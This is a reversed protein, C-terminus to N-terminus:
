FRIICDADNDTVMTMVIMRIYPHGAVTSQQLAAAGSRPRKSPAMTTSFWLGRSVSVFDTVLLVLLLSVNILNFHFNIMIMPKVAIGEVHFPPSITM